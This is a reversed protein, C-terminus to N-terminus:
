LRGAAEAKKQEKKKFFFDVLVDIGEIPENYTDLM